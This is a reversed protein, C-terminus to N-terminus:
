RESEEDPRRVGLVEEPILDFASTATDSLDKVDADHPLLATAHTVTDAPEEDDGNQLLLAAAHQEAPPKGEEDNPPLYVTPDEATGSDSGPLLLAAQEAPPKSEHESSPLFVVSTESVTKSDSVPAFLVAMGHEDDIAALGDTEDPPPSHDMMDDYDDTLNGSLNSLLQEHKLVRSVLPELYSPLPHDDVHWHKELVEIHSRVMDVNKIIREFIQSATRKHQGLASLQKAWKQHFQNKITRVRWKTPEPCNCGYYEDYNELLWSVIYQDEEATFPATKNDKTNNGAESCAVDRSHEDDVSSGTEFADMEDPSPSRDMHMMDRHVNSPKNALITLHERVKSVLPELHTPLRPVDSLDGSSYRILAKVYRKVTTLSKRVRGHIQAATRSYNTLTSMEDAWKQHFKEKIARQDIRSVGTNYLGYYEDYSELLSNILHQNEKYTLRVRRIRSPEKEGSWEEKTFLEDDVSTSAAPVDEEDPAPQTSPPRVENFEEIFNRSSHSSGQLHLGHEEELFKAVLPELYSQLNPLQSIEGAHYRKLAKIYHHATYISKKLKDFVQLSTRKISRLASLDGAWKELFRIKIYRLASRTAHFSYHGYYEHYNAVFSSILYRNEEYSFQLIRQKNRTPKGETKAPVNTHVPLPQPHIEEYKPAKASTTPAPGEQTQRKLLLRRAIASFNNSSSPASPQM